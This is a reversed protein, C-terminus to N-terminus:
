RATGGALAHLGSTLQDMQILLQDALTSGAPSTRYFKRPRSEQTDWESALLGREELRRLLALTTPIKSVSAPHVARDASQALLVTGDAAEVYVGQDAGLLRRAADRIVTPDPQAALALSTAFPLLGLLAAARM